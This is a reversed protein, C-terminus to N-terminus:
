QSDWPCHSILLYNQGKRFNNEWKNLSDTSSAKKSPDNQGAGLEHEKGPREQTNQSIWFFVERHSTPVGIVELRKHTKAVM